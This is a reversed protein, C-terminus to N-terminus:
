VIRCAEEFPLRPHRPFLGASDGYGLNCLFNVAIREGRFAADSGWGFFAAEIRDADFGSMPGVDLGLGRAAIMLYAGQLSSNRFATAEALAVNGTFWDRADPNHPFLRPLADYFRRDYGVIATVPAAMTKARNGASLAPLLRARAQATCVFVVRAPSCNASTPGMKMLDYLQTLLAQPVPRDQWANHSRAQRFLLDWSAEDLNTKM